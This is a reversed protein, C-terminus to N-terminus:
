VQKKILLKQCNSNTEVARQNDVWQMAKFIHSDDLTKSEKRCEVPIFSIRNRYAEHKHTTRDDMLCIATKPFQQKLFSPKNDVQHFFKLSPPLSIGLAKEILYLIHFEDWSGQTILVLQIDDKIIKKFLRKLKEIHFFYFHFKGRCIIVEAKKLTQLFQSPMNRKLLYEQDSYAHRRAFFLTEDLDFAMVSKKKDNNKCKWFSHCYSM